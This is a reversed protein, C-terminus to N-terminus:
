HSLPTQHSAAYLQQSAGQVEWSRTVHSDCVVLPKALANGYQAPRCGMASVYMTSMCLKMASPSLLAAKLTKWLM